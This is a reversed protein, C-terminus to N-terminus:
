SLMAEKADQLEVFEERSVGKDPHCEQLLDRYAGRVVHDPADPAVELM